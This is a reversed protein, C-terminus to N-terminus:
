HLHGLLFVVSKYNKGSILCLAVMPDGKQFQINCFRTPEVETQLRETANTKQSTKTRTKKETSLRRSVKRSHIEKSVAVFFMRKLM